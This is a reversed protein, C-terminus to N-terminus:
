PNLAWSPLPERYHLWDFPISEIGSRLAVLAGVIACITDVDGLARAAQWIAEEYDDAYTGACWLAFPVTDQVSARSGNGLTQAAAATTVAAPLDRAVQLGAHVEGRPVLPLVSDILATRTLASGRSQWAVAAAVAVAAAGALGEPHTHTVGAALRAQAAAQELDDAFYAGVPAVHMAADNGFSGEGWFMEQAVKQWPEDNNMRVLMQRVGIGYGRLPDFQAVYSAALVDQNIHGYQRLNAYVSLAMNTDDTYMWPTPPLKREEILRVMAANFEFFSGFADGVSLGELAIRARQLRDNQPM